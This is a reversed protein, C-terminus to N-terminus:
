EYIAVPEGLIEEHPAVGLGAASPICTAGDANRAGEGPATDVTLMEQCLWTGLRNQAPVSQALHQAATDAIVSGGTEMVLMQMGAALASDRIRRAKTLGGCRNIKINIVEAIKDSIIRQMDNQTELREDICIPQVTRARVVACQELTECPQEVMIPLDRVANMVEIAEGPLWARNVDYRIREDARRHKEIHRIRAIDLATDAGIKVSHRRYGRARYREIDALMQPPSDTAISSTILTSEPYAGGLLDAIPLDCSKGFIDWAAIDFPSKAYLHGPLIMDMRANLVDLRRPEMGLLAPALLEAAARIGAGHAPLYTHGWPCGEGWGCVGADTDMRVFTADLETFLLRGGSLRYPVALPLTKQYLSIRTIKM